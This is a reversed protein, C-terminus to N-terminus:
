TPASSMAATTASHVPMGTVRRVSVLALPQEVHLLLEVLAHHALVLGYLGHGPGDAAAAHPQLIGLAGDAREQEQAGGAHALGLQALRQGLGHEAVLVGHDADVHGLIHLPV